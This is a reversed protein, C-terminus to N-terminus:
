ETYVTAINQSNAKLKYGVKGCTIQKSQLEEALRKAKPVETCLKMEPM